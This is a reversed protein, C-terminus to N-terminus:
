TGSFSAIAEYFDTEDVGMQQCIWKAGELHDLYQTGYVGIPLLGEPSDLYTTGESVVHSPTGYPFRRITNESAEVMGKLAIDEQNFTISGGKVIGDVFTKFQSEYNEYTPYDNNQDWAIDSLLAINPQYLHFKPRKDLASSFYEDGELVIFDNKDTLHVMSCFGDLPAGLVYDVEIDQYNLVRLIMSIIVSKGQSGGIVVRTKEKSQEFLFEPYSYIQIGLQQARLLEPNDSNADKGLIIADLDKTIKEPFWGITLPFLGEKELRGRAPEHIGIDSGTIQGGKKKLALALSHMIAGGIAIFHVRM